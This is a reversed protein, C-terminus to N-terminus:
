STIASAAGRSLADARELPASAIRRGGGDFAKDSESSREMGERTQRMRGYCPCAAAELKAPDLVRVRGRRCRIIGASQLKSAVLTVTTRQVGVMRALFSQTLPVVETDSRDHLELVWRCIRAQASHAANCAASQQAQAFLSADVLSMHRSLRSSQALAHLFRSRPVTYGNGSVQVLLDTTAGGNGAVVSSGLSGERGIMAIEIASGGGIGTILSVVGSEPFLVQEVRDGAHLLYDGLHLEIPRL